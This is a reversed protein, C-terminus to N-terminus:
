SRQREHWTIQCKLNKLFRRSQGVRQFCLSFMFKRVKYHVATSSRKLQDIVECFESSKVPMDGKDGDIVKGTVLKLKRKVAGEISKTKKQVYSPRTYVKRKVIPSEGIAGLSQNLVSLELDPSIFLDTSSTTIHASM